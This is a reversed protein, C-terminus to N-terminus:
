TSALVSRENLLSLGAEVVDEPSIDLCELDYPCTFAYCPSCPTPRRLLHTRTRRPRWQQELETGAFLIVSPTQTADAIHMTSTNNSLLLQAQAVLAVLDSLNTKGIYDIARDGLVELLPQAAERYKDTGTVVVPYGTKDSLTRAAIAMKELPYTRSPCSTWPNLLLYPKPPILDSPSIHLSLHRDSVEFGVAEILQLNREVQHLDHPLHSVRHTLCEGSEQSAGLRLPIEAMQCIFAPPHPSQKFSTFIIAGDFNRAKLTAILEWERDADGPPTELAQWLTRWPIVEDVWPLVPATLSGAPSALLILRTDPHWAKLAQLAPATMLVDGINDLRLILLNRATQWTPSPNLSNSRKFTQIDSREFTLPRPPLLHSIATTIQDPTLLNVCTDWPFPCTGSYWCTQETFNPIHREPCSPYGQLNLHPPPQGYRGAWSPGFLTLTPTGVAAAIRAPGTDAAVVVDLQAFLAALERLSRREWLQAGEVESVIAEVQARDGGEPVVLSAGYRQQLSRGLAVFHDTSWQKIAMGADPYLGIRPHPLSNLQEAVAAKEADTLHLHPHRHAEAAAPTILSEEQLIQLFRDSVLQNGPPNRWLNTVVREVGRHQVIEAIGEYTTDTVILDYPERLATIVAQRAQGRPVRFIRDIQPHGQLLSDGPAFTLVTMRASPHVAALAQIAPLAM